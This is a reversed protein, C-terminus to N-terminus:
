LIEILKDKILQSTKNECIIESKVIRREFTDIFILGKCKASIEDIEPEEFTSDIHEYVSFDSAHFRIDEKEKGKREEIRLRTKEVSSTICYVLFVNDTLSVLKNLVISRRKKLGFSSDLIVSKDRFLLDVAAGIYMSTAQERLDDRLSDSKGYDPKLIRKYFACQIHEASTKRALNMATTTKGSATRGLILVIFPETIDKKEKEKIYQIVDEECSAKIVKTFKDNHTSGNDNGGLIKTYADFAIPYKEKPNTLFFMSSKAYYEIEPNAADTKIHLIDYHGSIYILESISHLRTRKQSLDDKLGFGNIQIHYLTQTIKWVGYYKTKSIDGEITYVYYWYGALYLDGWYLKLLFTSHEIIWFITKLVIQYSMLASFFSILLRWGFHITILRSIGEYVGVAFILAITLIAITLAHQKITIKLKM